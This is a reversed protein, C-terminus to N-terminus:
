YSSTYGNWSTGPMHVAVWVPKASSPLFGATIKGRVYLAPATFQFALGRTVDDFVCACVEQEEHASKRMNRNSKQVQALSSRISNKTSTSFKPSNTIIEVVGGNQYCIILRTNKDKGVYYEYDGYGPDSPPGLVRHVESRISGLQIRGLSKGPVISTPTAMAPCAAFIIFLVFIIPISRM